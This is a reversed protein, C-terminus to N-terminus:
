PQKRVVLPSQMALRSSAVSSPTANKPLVSPGNKKCSGRVPKALASNAATAASSACAAPASHGNASSASAVRSKAIITSPRAALRAILSPPANQPSSSKIHSYRRKNMPGPAFGAGGHPETYVSRSHTTNPSVVSSSRAHIRSCPTARMTSSRVGSSWM